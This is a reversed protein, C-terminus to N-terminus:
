EEDLVKGIVDAFLCAKFEAENVINLHVYLWELYHAVEHLLVERSFKDKIWIIWGVCLGTTDEDIIVEKETNLHKVQNLFASKVNEGRWIMLKHDVFPVDIILFEDKKWKKSM